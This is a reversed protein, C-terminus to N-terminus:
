HLTIHTYGERVAIIDLKHVNFMFDIKMSPGKFFVGGGEGLAEFQHNQTKM